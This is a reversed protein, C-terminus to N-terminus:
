TVVPAESRAQSATAKEEADADEADDAGELARALRFGIREPEPRDVPRPLTRLLLNLQGVHLIQQMRQGNEDVGTFTVIDPAHFGVGRIRLVGAPGGSLAMAVDQSADLGEEFTKLYFIIRQYAWEAPSKEAAPRAVAAPLPVAHDRGDARLEAARPIAAAEMAEATTHSESPDSM